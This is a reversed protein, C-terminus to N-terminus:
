KERRLIAFEKVETDFVAKIKQQPHPASEIENGDMDWMKLIRGEKIEGGPLLLDFAQTINFNNRQEILATVKDSEVEKVLAVFDVERVYHSSEYTQATHDAKQNYFGSTFHRHSSKALEGLWKEDFNYDDIGKEYIEDIVQRYANVVTAVYNVSKMRGEIKFSDIGAKMLDHLFEITRLDKSSMIYTGRDDEYVPYHENPRKEEVLRYKWRCPQACDGRNADRGVMFNSILCRGSYAMCMAGHIFTEIEIEVKEKIEQVEQLSLERALVIRSIGQNKWFQAASYNTVSAQTSLHIELDPAEEKIIAVIGPDSVIVADVGVAALWRVFPPLEELDENHALINLTVYIKAGHSHAYHLGELLQAEDFNTAKARLGFSKGALFVADAGYAIAVKLKELDGAPALLEPKKKM